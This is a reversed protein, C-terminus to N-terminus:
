ASGLVGELVCARVCACVMPPQHSSCCSSKNMTIASIFYILRNWVCWVYPFWMNSETGNIGNWGNCHAQGGIGIAGVVLRWQCVWALLCVRERHRWINVTQNPFYTHLQKDRVPHKTDKLQWNRESSRLLDSRILVTEWGFTLPIKRLSSFRMKLDRGTHHSWTDTTYHTQLWHPQVPVTKIRHKYNFSRLVCNSKYPVM